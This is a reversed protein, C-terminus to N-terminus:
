AQAQLLTREVNELRRGVNELENAVRDNLATQRESNKTFDTLVTMLQEARAAAVADNHDRAKVYMRALYAVAMTLLAVLGWPGGTELAQVITTLDM